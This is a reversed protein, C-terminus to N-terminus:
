CILVADTIRIETLIKVEDEPEVIFRFTASSRVARMVRGEFKQGVVKTRIGNSNRLLALISGINGM